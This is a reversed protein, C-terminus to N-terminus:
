KDLWKIAKIEYLIQAEQREQLLHSYDKLLGSCLNSDGILLIYKKWKYFWKYFALTRERDRAEGEWIVHTIGANLMNWVEEWYLTVHALNLLTYERSEVVTWKWENTTHSLQIQTQIRKYHNYYGRPWKKFFLTIIDNIQILLLSLLIDYYLISYLLIFYLIYYYLVSASHVLQSLSHGM